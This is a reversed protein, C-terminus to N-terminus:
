ESTTFTAEVIIEYKDTVAIPVVSFTYSVTEYQLFAEVLDGPSELFITTHFTAHSLKQATIEYFDEVLDDFVITGNVGSNGNYVTGVSLSRVRVDVNDLNLKEESLFTRTLSM